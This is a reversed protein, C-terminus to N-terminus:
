SISVQLTLSGHLITRTTVTSYCYLSDNGGIYYVDGVDGNTNECSLANGVDSTVVVKAHVNDGMSWLTRVRKGPRLVLEDAYNLTIHKEVKNMKTTVTPTGDNGFSGTTDGTWKVNYTAQGGHVLVRIYAYDLEPRETNTCQITGQIIGKRVAPVVDVYSGWYTLAGGTASATIYDPRTIYSNNQAGNRFWCQFRYGPLGDASYNVQYELNVTNATNKHLVVTGANCYTATMIGLLAICEKKM